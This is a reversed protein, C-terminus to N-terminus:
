KKRIKRNSKPQNM